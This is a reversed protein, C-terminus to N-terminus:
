IKIISEAVVVCPIDCFNHLRGKVRITRGIGYPYLKDQLSNQKCKFDWAWIHQTNPPPSENTASDVLHVWDQSCSSIELLYDRRILDKFLTTKRDAIVGQLIVCNNNINKEATISEIGISILTRVLQSMSVWEHDLSRYLDELPDALEQLQFTLRNIPEQKNVKM